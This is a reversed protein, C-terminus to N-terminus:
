LGFWIHIIMNSSPATQHGHSEEDYLIFPAAWTLDIHPFCLSCLWERERAREPLYPASKHSKQVILWWISKKVAKMFYKFNVMVIVVQINIIGINGLRFTAYVTNTIYCSPLMINGFYSKMGPTGRHCAQHLGMQLPWTRAGPAQPECEIQAPESYTREMRERMGNGKKKFFVSSM